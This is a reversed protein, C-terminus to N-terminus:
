PKDVVDCGCGYKRTRLWQKLRDIITIPYPSAPHWAGNPHKGNGCQVNNM